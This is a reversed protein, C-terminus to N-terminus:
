WYVYLRTLPRHRAYYLRKRQRGIAVIHYLHTILNTVGWANVRQRLNWLGPMVEVRQSTLVRFGNWVACYRSQLRKNARNMRCSRMNQYAVTSSGWDWPGM